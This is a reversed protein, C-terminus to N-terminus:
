RHNGALGVLTLLLFLLLLLFLADSGLCPWSSSRKLDRLLCAWRRRIAAFEELDVSSSPDRPLPSSGNWFDHRSLSFFLCLFPDVVYPVLVSSNGRVSGALDDYKNQGGRSNEVRRPDRLVSECSFREYPNPWSVFVDVVNNSRDHIPQASFRASLYFVSGGSLPSSFIFLLIEYM